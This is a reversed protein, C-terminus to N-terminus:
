AARQWHLLRGSSRWAFSAWLASTLVGLHVAQLFWTGALVGPALGNWGWAEQRNGAFCALLGGPMKCPLAEPKPTVATTLHFGLRRAFRASRWRAYWGRRTSDRTRRTRTADM